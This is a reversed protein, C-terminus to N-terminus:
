LSYPQPLTFTLSGEGAKRRYWIGRGMPIVKPSPTSAATGWSTDTPKTSTLWKNKRAQAATSTLTSNYLFLTIYSSAENPDWFMLQDANAATAAGVCGKTLWDIADGTGAVDPNPAFGTSFGGSIMTLGERVTISRGETAKVAGGAMNLTIPAGFTKRSLWLGMGSTLAKPSVQSAATGWSTDTPKTSTLWKNKRAQAATSTLTSDYLFLTIYSSAEGPDWYMLQDANGAAAAGTLGQGLPDKFLDQISIATTGDVDAFQVGIMTMAQAPITVTAYGVTNASTIGDSFGVAACLTAAAAIMLKKM